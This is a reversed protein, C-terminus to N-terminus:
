MRFAAPLSFHPAGVGERAAPSYLLVERHLKLRSRESVGEQMFFCGSDDDPALTALAYRFRTLEEELRDVFERERDGASGVKM